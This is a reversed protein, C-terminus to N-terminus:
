RVAIRAYLFTRLTEKLAIPMPLLAAGGPNGVRLIELTAIENSIHNLVCESRALNEQQSLSSGAIRGHTSDWQGAVTRATDLVGAWDQATLLAQMWGPSDM